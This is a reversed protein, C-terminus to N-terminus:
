TPVLMNYVGGVATRMMTSLKDLLTQKGCYSITYIKCLKADESLLYDDSTLLEDVLGMRVAHTGLWYEGTSVAEIDVHPRYTEIFEKFLGHAAELEEQFKQRGKTTNEGFLSLTRKYKGASIQEFDIHHQKLFRHFNPLQAVVGISGVIAFPAALIRNAVCAMLYGGSAAIKDVSVTLPINRTRIRALQSAALGYTQIMGGASEVTVFVEDKPTAVGLVATVEERFHEVASAKLDGQFHLVFIRKTPEEAKAAAKEEAKKEKLYKKFAKKELVEVNLIEKMEAYKKNLNKIMLQPQHDDGGRMRGFIALIGGFVVLISIVITFLKALFIGYEAFFHM